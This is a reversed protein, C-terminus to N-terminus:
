VFIKTNFVFLKTNIWLLWQLWIVVTVPDHVPLTDSAVTGSFDVTRDGRLPTHVGLVPGCDVELTGVGALAM